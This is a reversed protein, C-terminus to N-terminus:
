LSVEREIEPCVDVKKIAVIMNKSKWKGKWVTGYGGKGVIETFIRNLPSTLGFFFHHLYLQFPISPITALHYLNLYKDLM